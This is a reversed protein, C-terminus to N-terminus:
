RSTDVARSVSALLQQANFPKRFFGHVGDVGAITEDSVDRGTVLIIPLEPLEGHVLQQLELGDMVPMGIDTILCDIDALPGNELLSPASSFLRVAYGASELLNELSELVRLDDDVVAVIHTMPM